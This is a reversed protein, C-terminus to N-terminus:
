LRHCWHPTELRPLPRGIDDERPRGSQCRYVSTSLNWSNLTIIEVSGFLLKLLETLTAVALASFAPIPGRRQDVAAAQAAAVFTLNSVEDFVPCGAPHRWKSEGLPLQPRNRRPYM